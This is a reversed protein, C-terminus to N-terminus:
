TLEEIFILKEKAQFYEEVEWLAYNDVIEFTLYATNPSIKARLYPFKIGEDTEIINVNYKNLCDIIQKVPVFRDKFSNESKSFLLELNPRSIHLHHEM